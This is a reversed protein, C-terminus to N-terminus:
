LTSPRGCARRTRAWAHRGRVRRSPSPSILASSSVPTPSVGAAPALRSRFLRRSFVAASFFGAAFAPRSLAPRLALRSSGRSSGAGFFRHGSSGAALFAARLGGSVGPAAPRRSSALFAREAGAWVRAACPRAPARASRACRPACPVSPRPCRGPLDTPSARAIRANVGRSTARSQLLNSSDATALASFLWSSSSSSRTTRSAYASSPGVILRKRGRAIPRAVGIWLRM